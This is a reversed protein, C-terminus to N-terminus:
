NDNMTKNQKTLKPILSQFSSSIDDVKEEEQSVENDNSRSNNDGSESSSSNSNSMIYLSIKELRNIDSKLQNIDNFLNLSALSDEFDLIKNKMKVHNETIKNGFLFSSAFRFKWCWLINYTLDTWTLAKDDKFM